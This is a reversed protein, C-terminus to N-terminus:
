IEPNEAMELIRPRESLVAALNLPEGKNPAM